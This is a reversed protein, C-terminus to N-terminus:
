STLYNLPERQFTRSGLGTSLAEAYPVGYYRTTQEWVNPLHSSLEALFELPDFLEFFRLCGLNKM